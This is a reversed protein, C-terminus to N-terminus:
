VVQVVVMERGGGQRRPPERETEFWGSVDIERKLRLTGCKGRTTGGECDGEPVGTSKGRATRRDERSKSGDGTAQEGAACRASDAAERKV